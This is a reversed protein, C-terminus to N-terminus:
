IPHGGSVPGSARDLYPDTRLDSVGCVLINLPDLAFHAVEGVEQNPTRDTGFGLEMEHVMGVFGM